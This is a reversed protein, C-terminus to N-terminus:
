KKMRLCYYWWEKTSAFKWSDQGSRAANSGQGFFPIHKHFVSLVFVQHWRIENQHIFFLCSATNNYNENKVRSIPLQLFVDITEPVNNKKRIEVHFMLVYSLYAYFIIWDISM